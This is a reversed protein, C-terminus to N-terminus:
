AEEWDCSKRGKLPIRQHDEREQNGDDSRADLWYSRTHATGCSQSSPGISQLILASSVSLSPQSTGESWRKLCRERHHKGQLASPLFKMEGEVAM